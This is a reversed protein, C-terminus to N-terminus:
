ASPAPAPRPDRRWRLSKLARQLPADVLLDFAWAVGLAVLPALAWLPWDLAAPVLGHGQLWRVAGFWVAGTLAHTIFLAFSVRAGWAALPSGGRGMADACVIVLGLAAIAAFDAAEGRPSLALVAVIALGAAMGALAGARSLRLAPSGRALLMGAAFLPLARLVGFDFPLDYLPRQLVVASLLAAGLVVPPALALALVAPTRRTAAWLGPFALYCAVLASLSWSPVNWDANHMLGWAHSLGAQAALDSFRYHEPHRPAIGLAGSVEVLLVFGVLVILHAPWVRLLRRGVFGATDVRGEDLGRGYARGLVFGSLMLFFDTALWGRAFAPSLSELPVPADAGFHYLVIFAAAFFRLAELAGGRENRSAQATTM